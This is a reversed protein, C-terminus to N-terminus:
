AFSLSIVKVSSDSVAVMFLDGYYCEPRFISRKEPTLDSASNKRRSLGTATSYSRKFFSLLPRAPLFCTAPPHYSFLSFFEWLYLWVFFFTEMDRPSSSNLSSSSSAKWISNGKPNRKELITLWFSSAYTCVMKIYEISRRVHSDAGLYVVISMHIPPLPM